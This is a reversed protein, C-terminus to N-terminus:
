KSFINLVSNWHSSITTQNHQVVTDLIKNKNKNRIRERLTYKIGIKIIKFECIFYYYCYYKFLISVIAIQKIWFSKSIVRELTSLRYKLYRIPYKYLIFLKYSKIEYKQTQYLNSNNFHGGMLYVICLILFM